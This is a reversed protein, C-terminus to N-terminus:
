QPVETPPPANFHQLSEPSIFIYTFVTMLELSMNREPPQPEIKNFINKEKESHIRQLKLGRKSIKWNPIQNLAMKSQTKKKNKTKYDNWELFSLWQFAHLPLNCVTNGDIDVLLNELYGLSWHISIIALLSIGLHQFQKALSLSYVTSLM